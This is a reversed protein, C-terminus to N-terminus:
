HRLFSWLTAIGELVLDAVGGELLESRKRHQMQTRLRENAILVEASPHFDLRQPLQAQSAFNELARHVADPDLVVIPARCHGCVSDRRIDVPAGCSACRITQVRSALEQVEAITLQRVFGNEIMFASFASFRGHRQPCRSYAFRGTHTYDLCHALTECCQPCRLTSRWPQRLDGQHEHVLRFLELVGAPALQTSEFEDFWIGQCAFCLDLAVEGNLRHPFRQISM